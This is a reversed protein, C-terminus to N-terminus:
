KNTKTTINARPGTRCNTLGHLSQSAFTATDMLGAWNVPTSLFLFALM